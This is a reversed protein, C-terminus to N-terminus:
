RGLTRFPRRSETALMTARARLAPAASPSPRSGCKALPTPHKCPPRAWTNTWMSPEPTASIDIVVNGVAPAFDGASGIDLLGNLVAGDDFPTTTAGGDVSVDIAFPSATNAPLLKTELGPPVTITVTDTDSLSTHSGGYDGPGSVPTETQGLSFASSTDDYPIQATV